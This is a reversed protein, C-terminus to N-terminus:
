ADGFYRLEEDWDGIRKNITIFAAQWEDESPEPSLIDELNEFTTKLDERVSSDVDVIVSSIIRAYIGLMGPSEDESQILHDDLDSAIGQLDVSSRAKPVTCHRFELSEIGRLIHGDSVAVSTEEDEAQDRFRERVATHLREDLTTDMVQRIMVLQVVFGRKIPDDAEVGYSSVKSLADTYTHYISYDSEEARNISKKVGEVPSISSMSPTNEPLIFIM